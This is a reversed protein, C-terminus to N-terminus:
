NTADNEERHWVQNEQLFGAEQLALAIRVASSHGVMGPPSAAISALADRIVTTAPGHTAPNEM